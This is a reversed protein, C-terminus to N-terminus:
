NPNLSSRSLSFASIDHTPSDEDILQSLIEGLASSIQFGKGSYGGSIYVHPFEPHQDIIMQKDPTNTILCSRGKKLKGSAKPLFRDLVNRLDGEDSPYKGFDQKMLDPNIKMESDTRGLKIGDGNMNPFGYYHQNEFDLHFCPLQPHQHSLDNTEFWAFTKRVPQLPLDLSTLIKGTWAGACVLTKDAYYTNEETKVIVGSTFPDISKVRTNTLLKAKSKSRLERYAKICKENLLAGSSFEFCGIFHEPISFGPWNKNIEHANLVELFQPNRRGEAVIKSVFLSSAEGVSLTGTPIFLTEELEKELNFWLEQSRLALPIIYQGEENSVHSVHRILRTEGHHSAKGHPPNFEDILLTDVGKKSLYYGTAMGVSGAGVIIVSYNKNM